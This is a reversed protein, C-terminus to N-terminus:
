ETHASSSFPGTFRVKYVYCEDKVLKNYIRQNEDRTKTISFGCLTMVLSDM